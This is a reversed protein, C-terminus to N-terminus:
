VLFSWTLMLDQLWAMWVLAWKNAARDARPLLTKSNNTINVDLLLVRDPDVEASIARTKGAYRLVKWRDRGDWRHREESDDAFRVRVDVPFIAEGHRRAVVTTEFGEQGSETRSGGSPESMLADIAYDFANSSRHVQEFFEDSVGADRAIAFFDDPRPHKFAWRTVYTSLIRQLRPWGIHRELTHLWLATKLYTTYGATAPFQQFTPISQLDSEAHPRFAPLLNLDTERSLRLDRYIWPIFDGFFREVPHWGPFAVDLVRGESFQNLGEDMWAHEFENTAVIGYWFQHGAEHVVVNEPEPTETPALWRTGGTLLTPYEMGGSASQWAPDVITIHGYPYAGYWEGYCRLAARTAEFHRTEQDLHEPQLLLRMDAPPLKPHEFRARREVFDPSATWAFDHVDEQRYHHTASGDGNERRSQERGTAGLLWGSPVTLRVDYVGFDAFFETADHFQHCNWGEPELVGIKPFWHAIFYYDGIAGTRAYPRPVHARWRIQIRATEGPAIPKDLPVAAVTRDDLNGDDPAIFRLRSTLNAGAMELSEIEIWGRDEAPRGHLTLNGSLERERMWTSRDDRWANWYLHFRLDTAAIPADNRWTLQATGSIIRTAPDLSADITYSANRPSLAVQETAGKLTTGSALVAALALTVLRAPM